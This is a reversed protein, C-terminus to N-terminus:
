RYTPCWSEADEPGICLYDTQSTKRLSVLSDTIRVIPGQDATGANRVDKDRCVQGDVTRGGEWNWWVLVAGGAPWRGVLWDIWSSRTGALRHRSENALVM